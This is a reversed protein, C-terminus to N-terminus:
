GARRRLAERVLWALVTVAMGATVAVSDTTWGPAAVPPFPGVPPVEVVAAVLLAALGAAAVLGACLWAPRSDRVALYVAAAAAAAAEVRFLQGLTISSGIADFAEALRLHVVVDVVLGAVALLRLAPLLAGGSSPRSSSRAGPRSM